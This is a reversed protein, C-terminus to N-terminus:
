EEFRFQSSVFALFLTVVNARGAAESLTRFINCNYNMRILLSAKGRCSEDGTYYNLQM